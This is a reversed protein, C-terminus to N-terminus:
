NCMSHSTSGPRGPKKQLAKTHPESGNRWAGFVESVQTGARRLDSVALLRPVRPEPRAASCGWTARRWWGLAPQRPGPVVGTRGEEAPQLALEAELLGLGEGDLSLTQDQRPSQVPWGSQWTVPMSLSPSCGPGADGEAQM